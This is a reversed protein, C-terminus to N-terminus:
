FSALSKTDRWSCSRFIWFYWFGLAQRGHMRFHDEFAEDLYDLPIKRLGISKAKLVAPFEIMIKWRPIMMDITIGYIM